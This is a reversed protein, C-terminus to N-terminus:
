VKISQESNKTRLSIRFQAGAGTVDKDWLLNDILKLSVQVQADSPAGDELVKDLEPRIRQLIEELERISKGPLCVYILKGTGGGITLAELGNKQFFGKATESLVNSLKSIAKSPDEASKGIQPKTSSPNDVFVMGHEKFFNWEELTVPGENVPEPFHETGTPVEIQRRASALVEEIERMTGIETDTLTDNIPTIGHEQIYKREEQTAPRENVPEPFSINPKNM